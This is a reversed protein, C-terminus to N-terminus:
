FNQRVAIRLLNYSAETHGGAMMVFHQRLSYVIPFDSIKYVAVSDFREFVIKLVQFAKVFTQKGKNLAMVAEPTWCAVMIASAVKPGTAGGQKSNKIRYVCRVGMM